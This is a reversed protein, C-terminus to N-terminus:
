SVMRQWSGVTPQPSSASCNAPGTLPSAKGSIFPLFIISRIPSPPLQRSPSPLPLHLPLIVEPGEHLLELQPCRWRRLTRSGGRLERQLTQGEGDLIHVTGKPQNKEDRTSNWVLNPKQTFTRDPSEDEPKSDTTIFLHQKADTKDQRETSKIEKM